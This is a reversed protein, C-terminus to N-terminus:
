YCDLSVLLDAGAVTSGVQTIRTKVIDGKALGVSLGTTSNNTTGAAVSVSGINNVFAGNNWRELTVNFAAGTPATDLRVIIDRATTAAPVRLGPKIANDTVAMTGASIGALYIPEVNQWARTENASGSFNNFQTSNSESGLGVYAGTLPTPDTGQALQVGDVYLTLVGTTTDYTASLTVDAGISTALLASASNPIINTFSGGNWRHAYYTGDLDTSVQIHNSGDASAGFVLGAYNTDGAQDTMVVSASQLGAGVSRLVMASWGNAAAGATRVARNGSIAIAGRPTLWAVGDSATGIAGDARDFTDAASATGASGTVVSERHATTDYHLDGVARTTVTPLGAGVTSQFDNEAVTSSITITDLGDSVVISIGTGAVLANAIADRAQEDSYGDEPTNVTVTVVGPATLAAVIGDGQFNMTTVDASLLSGEDQVNLAAGTIIFPNAASGNGTVTIHDGAVVVCSCTTSCGCRPM